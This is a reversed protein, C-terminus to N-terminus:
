PCKGNAAPKVTARAAQLVSDKQIGVVTLCVGKAIVLASRRSQKWYTTKKDVEVTVATDSSDAVSVAQGDVSIVAGRIQKNDNSQPCKPHLPAGVTIVRARGPTGSGQIVDVCSDITIDVFKAHRVQVVLTKPTILVYTLSNNASVTVTSGKVATVKGAANVQPPPPPPPTPWTWDRLDGCGALLIVM